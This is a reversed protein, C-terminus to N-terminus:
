RSALTVMPVASILRPDKAADEPERRVVDLVPCRLQDVPQGADRYPPDALVWWVADEAIDPDSDM